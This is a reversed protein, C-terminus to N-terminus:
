RRRMSGFARVKMPRRTERWRTPVRAAPTPRGCADAGAGARRGGGAARGVGERGRPTTTKGQPDRLRPEAGGAADTRTSARPSVAPDYERPRGAPPRRRAWAGRAFLKELDLYMWQGDFHVIQYPGGGVESGCRRALREFPAHRLVDLRLGRAGGRGGKIIRQRRIPFPLRRGRPGRHGPPHAPDLGRGSAAPAAEGATALVLARRAPSAATRRTDRLRGLILAARARGHHGSARENM